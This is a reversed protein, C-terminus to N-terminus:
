SNWCLLQLTPFGSCPTQRCTPDRTVARAVCQAVQGPKEGDRWSASEWNCLATEKKRLGIWRATLIRSGLISLSDPPRIMWPSHRPNWKIGKNETDADEALFKSKRNWTKWLIIRLDEALYFSSSDSNFHFFTPSRSTPSPPLQKYVNTSLRDEAGDQFGWKCFYKRNGFIDMEPSRLYFKVQSERELKYKLKRQM